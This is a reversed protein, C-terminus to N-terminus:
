VCKRCEAEETNRLQEFCERAELLRGEPTNLQTNLGIARIISAALVMTCPAVDWFATM